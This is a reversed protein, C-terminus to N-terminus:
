DSDTPPQPPWYVHDGPHKEFGNHDANDDDQDPGVSYLTFREGDAQTRYILPAGSFPDRCQAAPIIGDLDTLRQPLHGHQQQYALVGLVVALANRHAATLARLYPGRGPDSFSRFLTAVPEDGAIREYETRLQEVNRWAEHFPRAAWADLAAFQRASRQWSEAASSKRLAAAYADATKFPLAEGGPGGGFGVMMILNSVMEEIKPQAARDRAWAYHAEILDLSFLMEAQRVIARPCPTGVANRVREALEKPNEPTRRELFALMQRGALREIGAAVLQDIALPRQYQHHAVRGARLNAAYAEAWRGAHAHQNAQILLLRALWMYRTPEDGIADHLRNIDSTLPAYSNAINTAERLHELTTGNADLYEGLVRQEDPSWQAALALEQTRGAIDSYLTWSPDDMGRARLLHLVDRYAEWAAAYRAEAAASGARDALKNVFAIREDAPVARPDFADGSQAVARCTLLVVGVLALLKM